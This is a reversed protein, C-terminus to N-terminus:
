GRGCLWFSPVASRRRDASQDAAGDEDGDYAYSLTSWGREYADRYQRARAEYAESLRTSLDEFILSLALMLHCERLATPDVIKQPYSGDRLLRNIIETFSEDIYLQFDTSASISTASSPDLSPVRRTLDVDSIAPYLTRRALAATNRVLLVAGGSLTLAWEARWGAGVTKGTLTAPSITYEAISGSITATATDIQVQNSANYLSFTASAPAVLAGSLYVPAYLTNSQDLVIIDPRAFRVTHRQDTLPM